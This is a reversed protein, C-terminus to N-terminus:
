KLQIDTLSIANEVSFLGKSFYSHVKFKEKFLSEIYKNEIYKLYYSVVLLLNNEKSVACSPLLNSEKSIPILLPM